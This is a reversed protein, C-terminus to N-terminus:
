GAAAWVVVNDRYHGASRDFSGGCTVLRLEPRATNAYVAATPFDDKPYRARHYTRFRVDTGDSYAVVVEEGPGLEGLRFFVAPARHSDVHGAVVAPGTEGPRPGREYWGASGFDDPVGLAGDADLGLREVPADVGIAPIRLRVPAADAAPVPVAPSSRDPRAPGASAGVETPPLLAPVAGPAPRVSPYGVAITATFASVSVLAAVALSRARRGDSRGTSGRALSATV